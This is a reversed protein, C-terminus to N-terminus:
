KRALLRSLVFFRVAEGGEASSPPAAASSAGTALAPHQAQRQQQQQQEARKRAEEGDKANWGVRLRQLFSQLPPVVPTGRRTFALVYMCCSTSVVITMTM